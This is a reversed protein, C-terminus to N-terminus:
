RTAELLQRVEEDEPRPFYGFWVARSGIGEFEYLCYVDDALDRVVDLGPTAGVPVAAVVRRADKARA